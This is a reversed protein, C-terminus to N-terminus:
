PDSQLPDAIEARKTLPDAIEARGAGAKEPGTLSIIM